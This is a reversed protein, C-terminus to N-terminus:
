LSRLSPIALCLFSDAIIIFFLNEELNFDLLDPLLTAFFAAVSLVLIVIFRKITM